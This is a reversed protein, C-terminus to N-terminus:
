NSIMEFPKDGYIAAMLGFTSLGPHGPFNGATIFLKPCQSLLFFDVFINRRDQTPADPCNGHVVAITTDLTRATFFEKKTEPSDSALFVPGFNEAIARFQAVAKDNAFTETDAEVVIRSDRASAGRRIHLGASVNHTLHTYEMLIPKLEDSPEILHRVLPYVRQLAHQNIYIKPVYTKKIGTLSTTPFKFNLWRGLEYENISEHVVSTIIMHQAYFDCLHMLTNALGHGKQPYLITMSERYEDVLSQFSVRHLTDFGAVYTRWDGSCDGTTSDGGGISTQHCVYRLLLPKKHATLFGHQAMDISYDFNAEDSYRKAFDRTVWFAECGGPNNISLTQHADPKVNKQFYEDLVHVGAGLRLLGVDHPFTSSELTDFEPHIVVDDEFIIAEPINNEVIDRMIWYQKVASAMQGLPMPSKTKVKVWKTFHDDKNLGEVWTVDDLSIGREAFQRLLSEKRTPRKPYHIVYYKMVHFFTFDRLPVMIQALRKM